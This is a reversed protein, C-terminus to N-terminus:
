QECHKVTIKTKNHQQQKLIHRLLGGLVTGPGVEVFTTAQLPEALLTEMSQQWRVPSVVQEVLHAKIEDPSRTARGTVNLVVDVRPERFQVADIHQAVTSAAQQMLSSHFAGSVTLRKVKKAKFPARVAVAQLKAIAADTGSFVVNGPCLWNAICLM